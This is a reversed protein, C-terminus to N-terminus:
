PKLRQFLRFTSLIVELLYRHLRERLPNWSMPIIDAPFLRTMQWSIAFRNLSSGMGGTVANLCIITPRKHAPVISLRLVESPINQDTINLYRYAIEASTAQDTMLAYHQYLSGSPAVDNQSRFRTQRLQTFLDAFQTELMTIVARNIAIPCHQFKRSIYHNFHQAFLERANVAAADAALMESICSNTPIVNKKSYFVKARSRDDFFDSVGTANAIIVDDNLYLYKDALNPIKHLCSEIVHSNFTPRAVNEGMIQHHDILIVRDAFESWFAPKQADTVLYVQGIGEFYRFLGRLAYLLEDNHAFRATDTADRTAADPQFKLRKAQWTPDQDDVWTFVVDVQKPQQSKARRELLSQDVWIQRNTLYSNLWLGTFAPHPFSVQLSPTEDSTIRLDIGSPCGHLMRGGVIVPIWIRLHDRPTQRLMDQSLAEHTEPDSVVVQGSFTSLLTLAMQYTAVRLGIQPTDRYHHLVVKVQHRQGAAFVMDLLQKQLTTVDPIPHM